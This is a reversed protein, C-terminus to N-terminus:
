PRDGDAEAAVLFGGRTSLRIQLQAYEDDLEATLGDPIGRMRELVGLAETGKFIRWTVGSRRRAGLLAIVTDHTARKVSELERKSAAWGMVVAINDDDSVVLEARARGLRRM